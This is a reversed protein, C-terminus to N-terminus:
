CMITYLVGIGFSVVNCCFSFLFPRKINVGYKRYYAGEAFIAVSELLLKTIIPNGINYHNFIYYIFVVLPNTIINVLLILLIDKKNRIGWFLSVTEEFFITSTLSILLIMLLGMEM